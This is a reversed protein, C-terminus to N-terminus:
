STRSTTRAQIRELVEKPDAELLMAKNGTLPYLIHRKAQFALREYYKIIIEMSAKADCRLVKKGRRLTETAAFGILSVGSEPSANSPDKMLKHFYLATGDAGQKGWFATDQESIAIVAEIHNTKNKIVFCNGKALDQRLENRANDIFQWQYKGTKDFAYQNARDLITFLDDLDEQKAPQVLPINSTSM